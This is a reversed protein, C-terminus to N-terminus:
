VSRTKWFIHEIRCQCHRHYLDHLTLFNFLFIEKYLILKGHSFMSSTQESREMRKDRLQSSLIWSSGRQVQDM